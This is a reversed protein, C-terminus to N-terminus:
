AIIKINTFSIGANSSGSSRVEQHRLMLLVNLMVIDHFTGHYRVTTIHISAELLKLAIVEGEDCLLDNMAYINLAPSLGSLQEISARLPSVTPEKLNTLDSTCNNM